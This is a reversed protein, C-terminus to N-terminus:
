MELKLDSTLGELSRLSAKTIGLERLSRLDSVGRLSALQLICYYVFFLADLRLRLNSTILSSVLM